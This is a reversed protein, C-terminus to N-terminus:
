KNAESAIRLLKASFNNGVNANDRDTQVGIKKISNLLPLKTQRARTREKRYSDYAKSLEPFEKKLVKVVVDQIKEVEIATDEIINIIEVVEDTLKTIQEYTLKSSHNESASTIADFIKNKNFPTKRGDRKIVSKM